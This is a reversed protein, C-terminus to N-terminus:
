VEDEDNKTDEETVGMTKTKKQRLQTLMHYTADDGGTTVAGRGSGGELHGEIGISPWRRSLAAGGVLGLCFLLQSFGDQLPIKPYM